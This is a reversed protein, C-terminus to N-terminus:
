VIRWCSIVIWSILGNSGLWTKKEPEKNTWKFTILILKWIFPKGVLSAKFCFAVWSITIGITIVGQHHTPFSINVARLIQMYILKLVVIVCVNMEETQLRSLLSCQLRTIVDQEGKAPQNQRAVEMIVEVIDPKLGSTCHFQPVFSLYKLIDHHRTRIHVSSITPSPAGKISSNFAIRSVIAHTSIVASMGKHWRPQLEPRLGFLTERVM